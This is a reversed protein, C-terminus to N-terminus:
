GQYQDCRHVTELGENEDQTAFPIHNAPHYEVDKCNRGEREEERQVRKPPHIIERPTLCTNDHALGTLLHNDV